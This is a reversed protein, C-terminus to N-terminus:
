FERQLGTFIELFLGHIMDMAEIYNENIAMEM